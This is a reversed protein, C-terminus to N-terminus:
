GNSRSSHEFTTTSARGSFRMCVRAYETEGRRGFLVRAFLRVCVNRRVRTEACLAAVSRPWCRRCRMQKCIRNLLYMRCAHALAFTHARTHATFHTFFSAIELPVTGLRRTAAAANDNSIRGGAPQTHAHKPAHLTNTHACAFGRAHTNMHTRTYDVTLPGHQCVDM